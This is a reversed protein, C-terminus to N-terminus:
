VGKSCTGSYLCHAEFEKSASSSELLRVRFIFFPPNQTPPGLSSISATANRRPQFVLCSGLAIESDLSSLSCRNSKRTQLASGDFNCLRHRAPPSSSHIYSSLSSALQSPTALKFRGRFRLPTKVAGMIASKVRQPGRKLTRQGLNFQGAAHAWDRMSHVAVIGPMNRSTLGECCSNM